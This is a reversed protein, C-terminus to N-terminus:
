ELLNNLETEREQKSKLKTQTANKLLLIDMNDLIVGDKYQFTLPLYLGDKRKELLSYFTTFLMLRKELFPEFKIFGTYHEQDGLDNLHYSYGSLSKIVLSQLSLTNYEKNILFANINATLTLNKTNGAMGRLGLYNLVKAESGFPTSDRTKKVMARIRTGQETAVYRYSELELQDGLFLQQAKNFALADTKIKEIELELSGVKFRGKLAVKGGANEIYGDMRGKHDLYANALPMGKSNSLLPLHINGGEFMVHKDKSIAFETNDILPDQHQTSLSFDKVSYSTFNIFSDSSSEKETPLFAINLRGEGSEAELAPSTWNLGFLGHSNHQAKVANLEITEFLFTEAKHELKLSAISMNSPSITLGKIEANVAYQSEVKELFTQDYEPGNLHLYRLLSVAFFLAVVGLILFSALFSKRKIRKASKHKKQTTRRKKRKARLPQTSTDNLEKPVETRQGELSSHSAEGESLLKAKLSSGIPVSRKKRSRRVKEPM